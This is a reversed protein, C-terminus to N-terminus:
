CNQKFPEFLVLWIHFSIILSESKQIKASESPLMELSIESTYKAVTNRNISMTLLPIASKGRKVQNQNINKSCKSEIQRDTWDGPIM